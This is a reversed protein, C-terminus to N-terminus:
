TAFANPEESQYIGFEPMKINNKIALNEVTEYAVLYKEGYESVEAKTLPVIGYARKAM